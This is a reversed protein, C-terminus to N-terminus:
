ESETTSDSTTNETTTETETATTAETTVEITESSVPVVDGTTAPDTITSTADSVDGPDVTCTGYATGIVLVGGVVAVKVKSSAWTSKLWELM